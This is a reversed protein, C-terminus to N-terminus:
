AGMSKVLKLGTLYAGYEAENNMTRYQLQVAYQIIDKEPTELIM